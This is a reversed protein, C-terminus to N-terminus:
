QVKASQPDIYVQKLLSQDVRSFDRDNTLLLANAVSATAAIWTDNHSLNWGGARDLARLTAYRELVDKHNIDVVVFETLLARLRDIKADGWSRQRAFGLTEGVTVVSILPRAANKRLGYAEDIRLGVASGRCVHVVVSTDLLLLDRATM